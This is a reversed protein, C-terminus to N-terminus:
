FLDDLLVVEYFSLFNSAVHIRAISAADVPRLSPCLTNFIEILFPALPSNQMLPQSWHHYQCSKFGLQCRKIGPLLEVCPISKNM